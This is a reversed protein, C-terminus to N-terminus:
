RVEIVAWMGAMYHGPLNCYLIYKGPKLELAVSATKNPEIEAVEGLTKITEEDVKNKAADYALIQNEDAVRAIIVEHVFQSALNTVNFRVNGRPVVKPSVNIGMGAKKLDGNMGMGLGMSKSLDLEGVKDILSVKVVADALAAMAPILFFIALSSAFQVFKSM